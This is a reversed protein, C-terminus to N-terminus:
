KELQLISLRNLLDPLGTDEKKEKWWLVINYLVSSVLTGGTNYPHM